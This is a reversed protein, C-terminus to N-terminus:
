KTIDPIVTKQPSRFSHSGKQLPFLQDKIQMDFINTHDIYDFGSPLGHTSDLGLSNRSNINNPLEIMSNRLYKDM